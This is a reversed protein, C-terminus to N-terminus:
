RHKIATNAPAKQHWGQCQLATCPLHQPYKRVALVAPLAPGTAIGAVTLFLIMWDDGTVM